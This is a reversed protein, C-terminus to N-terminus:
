SSKRELLVFSCPALILGGAEVRSAGPGGFRTEASDCRPQWDGEPLAVPSSEGAALHFATLVADGGARRELLIVGAEDIATVSADPLSLRALPPLDRGV